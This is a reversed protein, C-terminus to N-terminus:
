SDPIILHAEDHQFYMAIRTALPINELEEPSENQLFELYDQGTMPNDLIVPWGVVNSLL